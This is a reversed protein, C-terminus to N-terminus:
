NSKRLSVSKVYEIFQILLLVEQLLTFEFESSNSSRTSANVTKTISSNLM